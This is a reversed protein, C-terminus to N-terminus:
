HTCRGGDHHGPPPPVDLAPNRHFFGVPQLMFGVYRVPMVPWDELRTIHTVGLTYWLVLNTDEISRNARCWAPLGAGGPHQNPYEGAPFREQPHYPTVWLNKTTFGARKLFFASPQAFSVTNEGPMLKYGVPEGMRNRSHSNIVKWYRSALPDIVQQAEQETTLLTERAFFANGYPNTPGEPEAEVHVEVVSNQPGDVEMDMRFNFFHQHIIANLGPAVLTGYKPKMPEGVLMGRTSMIGTLKVEVEISGDQYFYWFFGYDYVGVTTFFSVVLRRSRRVQGEETRFDTHKWLVGYDEEHMCIVNKKTVADGRGDTLYADFYQIEGLCDCGRELSNAQVGLGHEGMDLVNRRYHLPSPDGYPVIMEAVSMRYLIPRLRGQDEYGVTYLVLGERHTFGLRFQWKQWRILNGDVSFSPGDPQTIELSKLDTRLPGVADLTYNGAEQPIPVVAYDEFLVVEMRTLDVVLHLGEIPHAYGNDKPGFRVFILPRSLRRAVDDDTGYYGAPWSDVMVLDMDTIGRKRMAEQFLPYAKVCVECEIAEEFPISAQVGPVPLFEVIRSGTIDVLAEYTVGQDILVVEAERPFADGPKFARVLDKTPEHLTVSIFRFHPSLGGNERIIRTVETIENATLSDLPHLTPRSAVSSHLTDVM